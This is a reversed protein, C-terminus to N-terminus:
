MIDNGLTIVDKVLNRGIEMKRYHIRDEEETEDM